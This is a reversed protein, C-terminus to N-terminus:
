RSLIRLQASEQSPHNFNCVVEHLGLRVSIGTLGHEIAADVERRGIKRGQTWAAQASRSALQSAALPPLRCATVWVSGGTLRELASM